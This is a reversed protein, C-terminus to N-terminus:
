GDELHLFLGLALLTAALPPVWAAMIPPLEGAQGLTFALNQIFYMSFGFLLALLVSVGLNGLRANQLTFIAGVLLMAAFLLPRVIQMQLHVRHNVSSFGAEEMTAIASPLQWLNLVEPSPYGELIQERSITLPIIHLTFPLAQREPNEVDRGLTWIKGNRLLWDDGRVFAREASMRRSARGDSGFELVMVDNLALGGETANRANIVIHGQETKQRMWVGNATVNITDESRGTYDRRLKEYRENLQAATPDFFMASFVGLLMALLIPAKLSRLASVGAARAVVFENSRALSVCFTLSTLMVVMPLAQSLFVPMHTMALVSSNSFTAGKDSLQRITELLEVLFILLAVMLLVRVFDRMFRRAFYLFLTM